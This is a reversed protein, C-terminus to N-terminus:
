YQHTAGRFGMFRLYCLPHGLGRRYSKTSGNLNKLKKVVPFKKVLKQNGGRQFEKEEGKRRKTFLRDGKSKKVQM